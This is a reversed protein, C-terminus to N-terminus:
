QKSFEILQASYESMLLSLSNLTAEFENQDLNAVQLTYRYIVKNGDETIAFAGHIIDRNKMLLAKLMELNDNTITFLYLEFIIVPPAIGVILNQVGDLLNEIMFVGEKEDKYTITYNINQIFNEIKSFYNM